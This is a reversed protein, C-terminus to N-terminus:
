WREEVAHRAFASAEYGIGEAPVDLPFGAAEMAARLRDLREQWDDFHRALARGDRTDKLAM